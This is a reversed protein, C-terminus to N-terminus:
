ISVQFFFCLTCNNKARVTVSPGSVRKLKLPKMCTRWLAQGGFGLCSVADTSIAGNCVVQGLEWPLFFLFGTNLTVKQKEM